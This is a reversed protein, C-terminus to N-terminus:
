YECLEDGRQRDAERWNAEETDIIHHCGKCELMAGDNFFLEGSGCKPCEEPLELPMISM